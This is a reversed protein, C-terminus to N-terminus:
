QDIRNLFFTLIRGLLSSFVLLMVNSCYELISIQSNLFYLKKIKTYLILILLINYLLVFTVKFLLFILTMWKWLVLWRKLGFITDWNCLGLVIISFNPIRLCLNNFLQSYLICLLTPYYKLYNANSISLHFFLACLRADPPFYERSIETVSCAQKFHGREPM